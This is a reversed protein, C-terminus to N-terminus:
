CYEIPLSYEFLFREAMIWRTKGDIQLATPFKYREDIVVIQKGNVAAALQFQQLSWYQLSGSSDYHSISSESTWDVTQKQQLTALLTFRLIEDQLEQPLKQIRSILKKTAIYRKPHM